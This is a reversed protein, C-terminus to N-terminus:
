LRFLSQASATTVAAVEELSTGRVEAIKAAIIPIYASENRTGRHPVPTLYPADTELLLRDLPVKRVVEALSARKFTVVGGIGLRWDGYRQLQLFTEYSGSYAHM